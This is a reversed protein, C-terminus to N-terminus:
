MAGWSSKGTINYEIKCRRDVMWRTLNTRLMAIMVQQIWRSNLERKCFIRVQGFHYDLDYYRSEWWVFNSTDIHFEGKIKGSLYMKYLTEKQITDRPSENSPLLPFFPEFLERWYGDDHKIPYIFDWLGM